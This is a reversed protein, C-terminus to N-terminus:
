DAGCIEFAYQGLPGFIGCFCSTFKDKEQSFFTTCALIEPFQMGMRELIGFEEQIFYTSVDM